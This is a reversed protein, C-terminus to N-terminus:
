TNEGRDREGSICTGITYLTSSLSAIEGEYIIISRMMSGPYITPLPERKSSLM